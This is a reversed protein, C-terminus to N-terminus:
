PRGNPRPRDPDIGLRRKIIRWNIERLSDDLHPDEVIMRAITEINGLFFEVQWELDSSSDVDIGLLVAWPLYNFLAGGRRGCLIVIQGRDSQLELDVDDASFRWLGSGMPGGDRQDTMVFGADAFRGAIEQILPQNTSM